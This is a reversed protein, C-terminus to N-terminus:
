RVADIEAARRIVPPQQRWIDHLDGEFVGEFM